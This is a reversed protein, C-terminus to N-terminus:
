SCDCATHTKWFLEHVLLLWTGGEDSWFGDIHIAEEGGRLLSRKVENGYQVM